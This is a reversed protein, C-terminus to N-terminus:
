ATGSAANLRSSLSITRSDTLIVPEKEIDKGKAIAKWYKKRKREYAVKERLSKLEEEAGSRAIALCYAVTGGTIAIVITTWIWDYTIM